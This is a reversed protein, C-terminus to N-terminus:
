PSAYHLRDGARALIWMQGSHTMRQRSIWGWRLWKDTTLGIPSLSPRPRNQDAGQFTTRGSTHSIAQHLISSHRPLSVLRFLNDRLQPLNLHQHRLTFRGWLGTPFSPYLLLTEAILQEVAFDEVAQFFCLDDDLLPSPVVVRDSRVGREVVPWRRWLCERGQRGM